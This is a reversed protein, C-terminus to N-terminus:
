KNKGSDIKSAIKFININVEVLEELINRAKEYDSIRNGMEMLKNKPVYVIKSKQGKAKYTLRYNKKKTGNKCVCKARRCNSCISTISGRIMQGCKNLENLLKKQKGLLKKMAM